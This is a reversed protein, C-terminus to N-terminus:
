KLALKRACRLSWANGLHAILTRGVEPFAGDDRTAASRCLFFRVRRGRVDIKPTAYGTQGGFLDEIVKIDIGASQGMMESALRRLREYRARDYDDNTFTLGTQAMAQLERAWVLWKPEM